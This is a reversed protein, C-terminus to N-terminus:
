LRILFLAFFFLCTKPKTRELSSLVFASTQTDFPTYPVSAFSSHMLSLNSQFFAVCLSVIRAYFYSLLNSM